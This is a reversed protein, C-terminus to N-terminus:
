GRPNRAPEGRTRTRPSCTRAPRNRMGAAAGPTRASIPSVGWKRAFPTAGPPSPRTPISLIFAQPTREERGGEPPESAPPQAGSSDAIQITSVSVSARFRPVVLLVQASIAEREGSVHERWLCEVQADGRAQVGCRRTRFRYSRICPGSVLLFSREDRRPRAMSAHPEECSPGHAGPRGPRLPLQRHESM